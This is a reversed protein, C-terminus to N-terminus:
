HPNIAAAIPARPPQLAGSVPRAPVRGQSGLHAVEPRKCQLVFPLGKGLVV